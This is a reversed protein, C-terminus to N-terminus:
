IVLDPSETDPTILTVFMVIVSRHFPVPLSVAGIWLRQVVTTPVEESTYGRHVQDAPFKTLEFTLANM